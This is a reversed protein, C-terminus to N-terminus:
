VQRVSPFGKRDSSRTGYTKKNERERTRGKRSCQRKKDNQDM